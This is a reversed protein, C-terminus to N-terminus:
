DIGVIVRGGDDGVVNVLEAPGSRSIVSWMAAIDRGRLSIAGQRADACSIHRAHDITQDLLGSMAMIKVTATVVFLPVRVSVNPAVAGPEWVRVHVHRVLPRPPAIRGDVPAAWLATATVAAAVLGTLVPMRRRAVM